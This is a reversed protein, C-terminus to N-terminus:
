GAAARRGRWGPARGPRAPRRPWRIRRARPPRVRRCRRGARRRAGVRQSRNCGCDAGRVEGRGGGLRRLGEGVMGPQSAAASGPRGGARGTPCSCSGLPEQALHGADRQGDGLDLRDAAALVVPSDPELEHVAVAVPVNGLRRQRGAGGACARASAAASAPLDALEVLACSRSLWGPVEAAVEGARHGGVQLRQAEEADGVLQGARPPEGLVADGVDGLGARVQGVEVGGVSAVRAGPDDVLADVVLLQGQGPAVGARDAPVVVVGAGVLADGEVVLLQHQGRAQEVVGRVGPGGHHVEHPQARQPHGHVHAQGGARQANFRGGAFQRVPNGHVRGGGGLFGREEGLGGALCQSVLDALRLEDRQERVGRPDAAGTKVQALQM